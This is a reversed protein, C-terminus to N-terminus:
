SVSELRHLLAEAYIIMMRPGAHSYNTVHRADIEQVLLPLDVVAALKSSPNFHGTNFVPVFGNIRPPRLLTNWAQNIVRDTHGGPRTTAQAAKGFQRYDMAGLKDRTYANIGCVAHHNLEPLAPDNPQNMTTLLGLEGLKNIRRRLLAREDGPIEQIDEKRLITYLKKTEPTGM